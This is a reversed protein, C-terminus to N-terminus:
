DLLSWSVAQRSGASLAPDPILSLVESVLCGAALQAKLVARGKGRGSRTDVRRPQVDLWGAGQLSRAM